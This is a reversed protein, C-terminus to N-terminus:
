ALQVLVSGAVLLALGRARPATLPRRPMRFWGNRDILASVLQQGTVTFAVTVAAGIRPMLLFTGTVYAAACFGGLWGWWPMWRLPRLQPPPTRRLALLIVLVGAITLTAVVFSVTAVALPPGLETRLRGNIAGQIPLVAGAALGLAIWGARTASPGTADAATM